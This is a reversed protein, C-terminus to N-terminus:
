ALPKVDAIVQAEHDDDEDEIVEGELVPVVEPLKLDAIGAREALPAADVLGSRHLALVAAVARVPAPMAYRQLLDDGSLVTGDPLTLGHEVLQM